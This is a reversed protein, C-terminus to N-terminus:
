ISAHDAESDVIRLDVFTLRKYTECELVPWMTSREIHGWQPVPQRRESGFGSGWNWAAPTPIHPPKWACHGSGDPHRRGSATKKWDALKCTLCLHAPIVGTGHCLRCRGVLATMLARGEADYCHPCSRTTSSKNPM